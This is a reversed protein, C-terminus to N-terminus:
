PAKTPKYSPRWGPNDALVAWQEPPYDGRQYAALRKSGLINRQVKEPQEAFWDGGLQIPTLDPEDLDFGLERWTKTVPAGVCRGSQHDLPGEADLPYVTGHMSVCVQCTRPGLDATWMWGQLVDLNAQRSAHAADRYASIMETRAINEARRRGGDFRDGVRKLMDVAAKRPNEGLAVGKILVSKIAAEVDGPIPWSLATVAATTRQVMADIAKADIRVGSWEAYEAPFQAGILRLQHDQALDLLSDLSGSVELVGADALEQLKDATVRLAKLARESRLITARSPWQDGDAAAILEDLAGAWEGSLERWAASWQAVIRSQTADMRGDSIAKLAVATNVLDQSLTM